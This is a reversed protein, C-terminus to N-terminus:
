PTRTRAREAKSKPLTVQSALIKRELYTKLKAQQPTYVVEHENFEEDSSSDDSSSLERIEDDPGVIASLPVRPPLDAISVPAKGTTKKIYRQHAQIRRKESKKHNSFLQETELQNLWITTKGNNPTVQIIYCGEQDECYPIVLETKNM